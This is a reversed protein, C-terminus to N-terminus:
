ASQPDAELLLDLLQVAHGANKSVAAIRALGLAPVRV